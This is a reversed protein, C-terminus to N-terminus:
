SQRVHGFPRGGDVDPALRDEESLPALRVGRGDQEDMSGTVVAALPRAQPVDEGVGPPDDGGVDGPV